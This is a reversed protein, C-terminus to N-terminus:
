RSGAERRFRMPEESFLGPVLLLDPGGETVRNVLNRQESRVTGTIRDDIIAHAVVKHDVPDVQLSDGEVRYRFLYIDEPPTKLDETVQFRADAWAATFWAYQLGNHRAVKLTTPTGERIRGGERDTIALRCDAGIDLHMEDTPEDKENVSAWHGQLAADCGADAALPPEQFSTSQCACALACLLAIALPKM